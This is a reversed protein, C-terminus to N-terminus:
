CYSLVRHINIHEIVGERLVITLHGNVRICEITYPGEMRIGLKTLDHVKKLVQQRPAYEYQCHKRKAHCINENVHHECNCAIAQWDAILLVTNLM